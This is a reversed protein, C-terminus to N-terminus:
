ERSSSERQWEYEETAYVSLRRLCDSVHEPDNLQRNLGSPHPMRFHNIGIETLARSAVAGLAVVRQGHSCCGRLFELDRRGGPRHDHGVNTFSYHRMGLADAWSELRRISQSKGSPGAPNQGVFLVSM